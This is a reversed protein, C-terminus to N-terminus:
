ASTFSAFEVIRVASIRMRLPESKNNTKAAVIAHDCAAHEDPEVDVVVGSSAPEVISAPLTASAAVSAFGTFPPCVRSTAVTADALTTAPAVVSMAIERLPSKPSATVIVNDPRGAPTVADARLMGAPIIPPLTVSVAALVATGVFAGAVTVSVAFPAAADAIVVNV